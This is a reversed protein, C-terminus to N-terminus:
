LGGRRGDTPGAAAALTPAALPAALASAYVAPAPFPAAVSAHLSSAALATAITAVAASPLFPMSFGAALTGRTTTSATANAASAVIASVPVLTRDFDPERGRVGRGSRPHQPNDHRDVRGDPHPM